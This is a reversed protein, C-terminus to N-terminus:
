EDQGAKEWESQSIIPCPLVMWISDAALCFKFRVNVFTTDFNRSFTPFKSIDPFHKQYFKIIKRFIKLLKKYLKRFITRFDASYVSKKILFENILFKYQSPWSALFSETSLGCLNFFKYSNKM